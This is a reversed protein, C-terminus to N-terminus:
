VLIICGLIVSNIYCVTNSWEIVTFGKFKDMGEQVVGRWGIEEIGGLIFASLLFLPLSMWSINSVHFSMAGDSLLM